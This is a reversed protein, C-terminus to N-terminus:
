HRRHGRARRLPPHQPHCSGEREEAEHQLQGIESAAAVRLAPGALRGRHMRALAGGDEGSVDITERAHRRGGGIHRGSAVVAAPAVSARAPSVRVSTANSPPSVAYSVWACTSTGSTPLIVPAAPVMDNQSCGPHCSPLWSSAVSISRPSPRSWIMLFTPKRRKSNTSSPPFAPLM